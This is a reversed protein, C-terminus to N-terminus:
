RAWKGPSHAEKSGQSLTKPAKVNAASVQSATRAPQWFGSTERMTWVNTAFARGLVAAVEM